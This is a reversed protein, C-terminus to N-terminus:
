TAKSRRQEAPLEVLGTVAARTVLDVSNDVGLKQMLHARHGEITRVSRHLSRAIEKNSMGNVIFRLVRMESVTLPTSEYSDASTSQQLISRARRGSTERFVSMLYTKGALTVPVSNIDAYFVSGDKRKVPIDKALTLEGAAQKAFQEVVYDLDEQPHIDMVALDTIEEPNCGLMQCIAKNGAVFQRSGVDALLMGEAVDDFIARFTQGPSKSEGDTKEREGQELQAVRSRLADLEQLLEGKAKWEELM